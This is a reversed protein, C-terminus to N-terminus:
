FTLRCILFTKKCGPMYISMEANTSMPCTKRGNNNKLFRKRM